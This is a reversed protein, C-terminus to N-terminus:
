TEPFLGLWDRLCGADCFHHRAPEGGTRVEGVLHFEDDFSRGGCTPCDRVTASAEDRGVTVGMLYYDGGLWLPTALEM